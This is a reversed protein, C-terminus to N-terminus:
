RREKKVYEVCKALPPHGELFYIFDHVSDFENTVKVVRDEYHFSLRGIVRPNYKESAPLAINYGLSRAIGPNEQFYIKLEAITQFHHDNFLRRGESPRDHNVLETVTIRWLTVPENIHAM